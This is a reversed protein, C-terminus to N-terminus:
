IVTWFKNLFPQTSEWENWEEQTMLKCIQSEIENVITLWEDHTTTRQYPSMNRTTYFHFSSRILGVITEKRKDENM